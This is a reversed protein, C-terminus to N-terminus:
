VLAISRVGDLLYSYVVGLNRLCDAELQQLHSDRALSLARELPQLASKPKGQRWLSTGWCLLIGAEWEVEGAAEALQIAGEVKEEITPFDSVDNYYIMQRLAVQAQKGVDDLAEAIENLVALDTEQSTRDGQIALVKERVLLLDYRGM